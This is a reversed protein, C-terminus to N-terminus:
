ILLGMNMNDFAYPRAFRDVLGLGNRFACQCCDHSSLGGICALNNFPVLCKIGLHLQPRLPQFEAVYLKGGYRHGLVMLEELLNPDYNEIISSLSKHVSREL